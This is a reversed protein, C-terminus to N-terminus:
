RGAASVVVGFSQRLKAVHQVCIGSEFVGPHRSALLAATAILDFIGRKM